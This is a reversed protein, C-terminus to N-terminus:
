FMEDLAALSALDAETPGENALASTEAEAAPPPNTTM